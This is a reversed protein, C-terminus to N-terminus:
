TRVLAVSGSQYLIAEEHSDNPLGRLGTSTVGVARTPQPTGPKESNTV